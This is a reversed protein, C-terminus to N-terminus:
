LICNEWSGAQIKGWTRRRSRLVGDGGDILGTDSQLPGWGPVTSAPAVDGVTKVAPLTRTIAPLAYWTAAADVKNRALVTQRRCYHQDCVQLRVGVVAESHLALVSYRVQARWGSPFDDDIDCSGLCTLTQCVCLCVSVCVNWWKTFTDASLCFKFIRNVLQLFQGSDKIRSFMEGLHFLFQTRCTWERLHENLSNISTEYNATLTQKRKLDPPIDCFQEGSCNFNSIHNLFAYIYIKKKLICPCLLVRAHSSKYSLFGAVSIQM